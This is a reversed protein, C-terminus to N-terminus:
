VTIENTHRRKVGPSTARSKPKSLLCDITKTLIAPDTPKVLYAQAGARMAEQIQTPYANASNFIIPTNPDFERIKRCLDVGSGDPLNTDISYLSFPVKKAMSLADSVSHAAIVKYGSLGLVFVMLDCTDMDDEICLITREQHRMLFRRSFLM